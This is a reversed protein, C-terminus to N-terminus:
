YADSSIVEGQSRSGLAWVVPLSSSDKLFRVSGDALLINAGGPHFSSLGYTGPNALTGGGNINCNPTKPNPALVLNGLTYGVLASIYDEGQTPTKGQRGTAPAAATCASLWQQIAPVGANAALMSPTNRTVGPPYQGVFIIDQPITLIGLTGTGTKWEGFAVTNSTGDTISALTPPKASSANNSSTGNLVSNNGQQAFLGNPPGNSYTADFEFSSGFSSFYNNGVAVLDELQAGTGEINWSPAPSSPCLFAAVRFAYVTHNTLDGVSSNFAAVAFNAVNFLNQQELYPLLRFQASFDGNNIYTTSDPVWAPLAGPPLTDNTSIYNHLALGIQKLNNVCQTRRAAERAAQVAPLLLAILVAIIAIVVLLEILTFGSRCTCNGGAVRAGAGFRLDATLRERVPRSDVEKLAQLSIMGFEEGGRAEPFEPRCGASISIVSM